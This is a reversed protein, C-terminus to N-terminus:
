GHSDMVLKRKGDKTDKLDDWLLDSVAEKNNGFYMRNVIHLDDCKSM